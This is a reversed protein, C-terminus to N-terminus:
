VNPLEKPIALMWRITKHNDITRLLPGIEGLKRLKDLWSPKKDDPFPAFLNGAYPTIHMVVHVKNDTGYYADHTNTLGQHKAIKAAIQDHFRKFAERENDTPINSLSM